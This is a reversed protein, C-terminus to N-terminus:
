RNLFIFISICTWQLISTKTKRKKASYNIAYPWSAWSTWIPRQKEEWSAWKRERVYIIPGLSILKLLNLLSYMNITIRSYVIIKRMRISKTKLLFFFIFFYFMINSSIKNTHTHMPQTSPIKQGLWWPSYFFIWDLGVWWMLGVWGLRVWIPRTSGM